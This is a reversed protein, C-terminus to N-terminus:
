FDFKQSLEEEGRLLTKSTMRLMYINELVKKCKAMSEVTTDAMRLGETSSAAVEEGTASLHTINDSIVTTSDLIKKISEEAVNIDKMLLEVAEGMANFKERTDDILKM